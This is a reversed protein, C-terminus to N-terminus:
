RQRRKWVYLDAPSCELADSIVIAIRLPMNKTQMTNYSSLTSKSVGTRRSLDGLSWGKDAALESVRCREAVPVM